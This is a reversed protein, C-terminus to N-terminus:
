LSVKIEIYGDPHWVALDGTHFWGGAFADRTARENAAYGKMVMNGRMMVEGVTCGDHPVRSMTTPDMVALDDLALYRM